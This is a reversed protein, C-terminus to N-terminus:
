AILKQALGVVDTSHKSCLPPNLQLEGTNTMLRQDRPSRLQM